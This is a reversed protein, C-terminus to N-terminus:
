EIDKVYIELVPLENGEEDYKVELKSRDIPDLVTGDSNVLDDLTVEEGYKEFLHHINRIDKIQVKDSKALEEAEAKLTEIAKGEDKHLEIYENVFAERLKDDDLKVTVFLKIENDDNDTLIIEEGTAQNILKVEFEHIEWKAFLNASEPLLKVKGFFGFEKKEKEFKQTKLDVKDGSFEADMYWGVFDYGHRTPDNPAEIQHTDKDVNVSGIFVSKGYFYVKASEQTVFVGFLILSLIGVCSGIITVLRTIFAKKKPDMKQKIQKEEQKIVESM